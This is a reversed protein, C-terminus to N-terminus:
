SKISLLLLKMKDFLKSIEQGKEPLIVLDYIRKGEIRRTGICFEANNIALLYSLYELGEGREKTFDILTNYKLKQFEFEINAKLVKYASLDEKQLIKVSIAESLEEKYKSEKINSESVTWLMVKKGLKQLNNAVKLVEPFDKAHFLILVGNMSALSRFAHKRSNENFARKIKERRIFNLM